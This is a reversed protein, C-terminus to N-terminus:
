IRAAPERLFNGIWRGVRANDNPAELSAIAADVGSIRDRRSEYLARAFAPSMEPHFQFSVAMGDRWSFGAYPTFLSSAILEAGPPPQVVQDQHSAPASVLPADDMWDEHRVVPYAHLGVGWGKPSKEVRGGFAQAMAQHGFCIGVLKAKGRAARLFGLLPGIWPLDEYVGASSGTILYADHLAVEPPLEGAQVDYSAAEVGLLREFMAPYRGHEALLEPPPAGTELSALSM